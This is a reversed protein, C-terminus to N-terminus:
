MPWRKEHSSSFALIEAQLGGWSAGIQEVIADVLLRLGGEAVDLSVYKCVFIGLENTAVEAAHDTAGPPGGRSATGWSGGEGKDDRRGRRATPGFHLSRRNL